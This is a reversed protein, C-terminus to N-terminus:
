LDSRINMMRPMPIDPMPPMNIKVPTYWSDRLKEKLKISERTNEGTNFVDKIHNWLEVIDDKVVGFTSKWSEVLNEIQKKKNQLTLEQALEKAMAMEHENLVM